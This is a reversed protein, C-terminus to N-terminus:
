VVQSAGKGLELLGLRLELSAEPINTFHFWFICALRGLEHTFSPKMYSQNSVVIRTGKVFERYTGPFSLSVSYTITSM